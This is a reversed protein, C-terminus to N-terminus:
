GEVVLYDNETYIRLNNNVKTANFEGDVQLSANVNIWGDRENGIFEGNDFQIEEVDTLNNSSMDINGTMTCGTLRCWLSDIWGEMINLIGGSNEMQTANWTNAGDWNVSTNVAATDNDFTVGSIVEERQLGYNTDEFNFAHVFSISIIFVFIFSVLKGGM